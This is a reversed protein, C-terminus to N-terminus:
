VYAIKRQVTKGDMVSATKRQRDMKGKWNSIEYRLTEPHCWVLAGSKFSIERRQINHCIRDPTDLQKHRVRIWSNKDAVFQHKWQSSLDGSLTERGELWVKRLFGRRKADTVGLFYVIMWLPVGELHPVLVLVPPVCAVLRSCAMSSMLEEKDWLITVMAWSGRYSPWIRWISASMFSCIFSYCPRDSLSWSCHNEVALVDNTFLLRQPLEIILKMSLDDGELASLLLRLRLVFKSPTLCLAM